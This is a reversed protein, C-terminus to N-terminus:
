DALAEGVVQRLGHLQWLSRGVLGTMVAMCAAAAAALLDVQVGMPSPALLGPVRIATWVFPGTGLMVVTAGAMLSVVAAVQRRRAWLVVCPGCTAPRFRSACDACLATGCGACRAALPRDSHRSCEEEPESVPAWGPRRESPRTGDYAARHDPRRLVQYAANLERMRLEADPSRNVDPHYKRALRRYAAEIVETDAQPDVQLIKYLDESSTASM